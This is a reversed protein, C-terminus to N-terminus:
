TLIPVYVKIRTGEGPESWVTLKGDLLAIREEMGLLGLGIYTGTRASELDGELDFGKGDDEVEMEISSDGFELTVYVNEADAHKSVNIIAEQIVRFLVLEIKGYDLIGRCRTKLGESDGKTDIYYQIGHDGLHKELVWKIASELGLDDLVTPRLDNILSHVGKLMIMCQERIQKLQKRVPDYDSYRSIVSDLSIMTVNLSQSTDDHLERAIRRREEEEATIVERLLVALKEKSQMLEKTRDAVRNELEFSYQQIREVSEALRIRMDDFSMSLTGIEDKTSVEIPDQLNGRAIKQTAGILSHIPRVIGKSLGIALLLGTFISVASLLLFGKRLSVSPAFVKERPDRVSIGWPAVSLPAFALMDRERKNGYSSEKCRHCNIVSGKRDSILVNLFKNQQSCTLIKRPDNSAIIVGQSDMLEVYTDPETHISKIAQALLYNTPDIEGGAVGVIESNKNKLPVLAFIVKKQTPSVTYVDSIVPRMEALTKRVYPISLLNVREEERHPYAIVVNGYTDMLFIRDTFISYEFATKLAKREPGWEGDEFDIKGSLSIDYLRKLNSELVHDIYQGTIMALALRNELSKNISANISLHSIIGLSALIIVLNLIILFVIRRQM